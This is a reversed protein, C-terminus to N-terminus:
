PTPVQRRDGYPTSPDFDLMIISRQAEAMPWDEQPVAAWRSSSKVVWWDLGGVRVHMIGVSGIAEAALKM